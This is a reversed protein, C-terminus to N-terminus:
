SKPSFFCFFFFFVYSHYETHVSLRLKQPLLLLDGTDRGSVFCIFAFFPGLLLDSASCVVGVIMGWNVVGVCGWFQHDNPVLSFSM